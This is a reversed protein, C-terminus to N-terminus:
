SSIPKPFLIGSPISAKKRSNRRHIILSNSAWAKRQLKAGSKSPCLFSAFGESDLLTLLQVM